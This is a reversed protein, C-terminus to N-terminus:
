TTTTSPRCEQALFGWTRAGKNAAPMGCGRSVARPLLIPLGPPPLPSRVCGLRGALSPFGARQHGPLLLGVQPRGGALPAGLGLQAAPFPHRRARSAQNPDPLPRGAAAGSASGLGGPLAGAHGAGAGHGAELNPTCDELPYLGGIPVIRWHLVTRWYSAPSRYLNPTCRGEIPCQVATGTMAAGGTKRPKRQQGEKSSGEGLGAGQLGKPYWLAGGEAIGRCPPAGERRRGQATGQPM